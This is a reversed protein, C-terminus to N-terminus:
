GADACLLRAMAVPENHAGRGSGAGARARIHARRKVARVAVGAGLRELRRDPRSSKREARRARECEIGRRYPLYLHQAHAVVARAVRRTPLELVHLHRIQRTTVHAGEVASPPEVLAPLVARGRAQERTVHASRARLFCRARAHLDRAPCVRAGAAPRRASLLVPLWRDHSLGLGRDPCCASRDLGFLLANDREHLLVPVPHLLLGLKHRLLLLEHLAFGLSRQLGSYLVPLQAKGPCRGWRCRSRDHGAERHRHAPGVNQQPHLVHHSNDSGVLAVRSRGCIRAKGDDAGAARGLGHGKARLRLLERPVSGVHHSHHTCVDPFRDVGHHQRVILRALGRAPEHLLEGHRPPLGVRAIACTTLLLRGGHYGLEADVVPEVASPLSAAM